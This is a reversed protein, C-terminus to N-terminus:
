WHNSRAEGGTHKSSMGVYDGQGRRTVAGFIFIGLSYARPSYLSRSVSPYNRVSSCFLPCVSRRYYIIYSYLYIYYNIIIIISTIFVITIITVIVIIIYIVHLTDM